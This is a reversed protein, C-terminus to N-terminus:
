KRNKNAMQYKGNSHNRKLPCHVREGKREEIFLLFYFISFREGRRRGMEGEPV